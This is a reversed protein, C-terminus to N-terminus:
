WLFFPFPRPQWQTGFGYEMCIGTRPQYTRSARSKERETRKDNCIFRICYLRQYIRATGPLKGGSEWPSVMMIALAPSDFMIDVRGQEEKGRVIKLQVNMLEDAVLVPVAYNEEKAMRAGLEIQQRAVRMDRIDVNRVDESQIMTKMVNEALDGLKEQAKAMDEPTKVAEGFEELIGAKVEEFDIEKELDKHDFLSKFIGNRNHLMQNAAMINYATLPMDHGSLMQIVQAEAEKAGAFEQMQEKYYAEEAQEDVPAQKLQWLM